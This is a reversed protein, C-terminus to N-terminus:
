SHLRQGRISCSPHWYIVERSFWGGTDAEYADTIDDLLLVFGALAAGESATPEREFGPLLHNVISRALDAHEPEPAGVFELADM